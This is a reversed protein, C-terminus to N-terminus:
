VSMVGYASPVGWTGWWLSTEVSGFLGCGGPANNTGHYIPRFTFDGKAGSPHTISVNWLLSQTPASAANMSGPVQACRDSWFNMTDPSVSLGYFGDSFLWKSGDPLQLATLLKGNYIYTWTRDAATITSILGESNYQVDLRVGDSSEIKKIRQPNVTDYTYTVTNGFRDIAKTAFLYIETLPALLHWPETGNGQSDVSANSTLDVAKRKVMWDFHYTVGDPLTVKFGEGPDNSVTDLCGIM